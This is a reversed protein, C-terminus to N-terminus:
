YDIVPADNEMQELRRKMDTVRQPMNVGWSDVLIICLQMIKILGTLRIINLFNTEAFSQTQPPKPAAMDDVVVSESDVLTTSSADSSDQPPKATNCEVGLLRKRREQLGQIDYSQSSTNSTRNGQNELQPDTLIHVTNTLNKTTPLCGNGNTNDLTEPMSDPSHDLRETFAKVLRPLAHRENHGGLEIDYQDQSDEEFASTSIDLTVEEAAPVEQSISHHATPMAKPVSKMNEQEMERSLGEALEDLPKSFEFDSGFRILTTASPPDQGDSGFEFNRLKNWVRHRANSIRKQLQGRISVHMLLPQGDHEFSFATHITNGHSPQKELHNEELHWQLVKCASSTQSSQDHGLESKFSWHSEQEHHTESETGVGAITVFQNRLEPKLSTRSIRTARRATGILHTPGHKGIQVPVGRYRYFRRSLGKNEDDLRVTVTAAKLRHGPPQHFSLDLYVIGAPNKKKSLVGWRSKEFLFKCDVMVKGISASGISAQQSLINDFRQYGVHGYGRRMLSLEPCQSDDPTTDEGLGSTSHKLDM